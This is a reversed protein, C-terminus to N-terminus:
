HRRFSPRYMEMEKLLPSHSTERSAQRSFSLPRLKWSSPPLLSARPFNRAHTPAPEPPLPCPSNFNWRSLSSLLHESRGSHPGPQPFLGALGPPKDLCWAEEAGLLTRAASQSRGGRSVPAAPAGSNSCSVQLTPAQSSLRPLHGPQWLRSGIQLAKPQRAERM